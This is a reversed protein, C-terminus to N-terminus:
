IDIRVLINTDAFRTKQVPRNLKGVAILDNQDNYLGVTTIYPTFESGTLNANITNDSGTLASPNYTFNFESDKLRCYANMTYIPQNSKWKLEGRSFASYFQVIEPDTVIATGHPYIIDGVIRRPKTTREESGSFVLHGEGDDVIEPRQYDGTASSVYQGPVLDYSEGVYQESSSFDNGTLISESAYYDPDAPPLKSGYMTESTQFYDNRGVCRSIVYGDDIYDEVDGDTRPMLVFSSPDIKTGVLQQPINVALYEDSPQRSQSITLTTQLFMDRSGSFVGTGLSDKYYLQQIQDHTLNSHFGSFIPDSPYVFGDKGRQWARVYQVGAEDIETEGSLEWRKRSTYDTVFVDQRSLKKFATM